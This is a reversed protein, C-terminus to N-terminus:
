EDEEEEEEEEEEELMGMIYMDELFSDVQESAWNDAEEITAEIELDSMETLTIPGLDELGMKNLRKHIRRWAKGSAWVPVGEVALYAIERATQTIYVEGSAKNLWEM